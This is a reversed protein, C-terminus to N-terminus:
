NADEKVKEWKGNWYKTRKVKGEKEMAFLYKRVTPYSLGTEQMLYTLSTPEEDSILSLLEIKRQESKRMTSNSEDLAKPITNGSLKWVYKFNLRGSSPETSKIVLEQEALKTLRGKAEEHSCGVTEAIKATTMPIDTLASLFASDTFEENFAM